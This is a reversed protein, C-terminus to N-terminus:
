DEGDDGSEWESILRETVGVFPVVNPYGAYPALTVLTERLEDPTLEGRRLASKAQLEWVEGAGNAAVVGMILLRRDRISLEEREWVEAFISRIMVDYFASTGEPMARAEGAYVELINAQGREFASMESM